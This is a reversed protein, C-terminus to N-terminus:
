KFKGAYFVGHKALLKARQAQFFQPNNWWSPKEIPYKGLLAIDEVPLNSNKDIVTALEETKILLMGLGPYKMKRTLWEQVTGLLLYLLFAPYKELKCTIAFRSTVLKPLRSDKDLNRIQRNHLELDLLNVLVRMNGRIHGISLVSCSQYINNYPLVIALM